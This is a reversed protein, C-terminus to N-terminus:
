GALPRFRSQVLAWELLLMALAAGALWPYLDRWALHRLSTIESKELRDITAYIERLAAEDRARFFRGGTEDAVRTLLEEDVETQVMVRRKGFVPDDVVQSFRGSRGVGITYVRIGMSAAMEAATLPDIDGQTNVGDTLLVVVRSKAASDKLRGVATALASGIATGDAVMGTSAREIASALIRQDLTLPVQTFAEGAFVVLGVRDHPRGAVFEALVAKAAELRNPAFDQAKMSGSVDLVAMVDVGRTTIPTTDVGFQPRSLAAVLLGLVLLRLVM